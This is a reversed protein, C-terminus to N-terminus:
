VRFTDSRFADMLAQYRKGQGELLLNRRQPEHARMEIWLHDDPLVDLIREAWEIIVPGEGDLIDDLGISDADHPGELRYCDLHHLRQHDHTRQHQHVLNFTPSTLPTTAGWGLGIGKAFVTKGTGLDGSLCIVDGPRLLRGLRIGLRTTQEASYSIINLEGERLIPM